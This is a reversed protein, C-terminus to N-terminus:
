TCLYSFTSAILFAHLIKKLCCGFECTALTLAQPTIEFQNINGQVEDLSYKETPSHELTKSEEFVQWREWQSALIKHQMSKGLSHTLVEMPWPVLDLSLLDM